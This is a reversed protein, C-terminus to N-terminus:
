IVTFLVIQYIVVAAYLPLLVYRLIIRAPRTEGIAIIGFLGACALLHKVATFACPGIELFHEMIPNLEEAGAGVHRLTSFADVLNLMVIALAVTVTSARLPRTM